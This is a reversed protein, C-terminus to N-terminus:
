CPRRRRMAEVMLVAGEISSSVPVRQLVGGRPNLPFVELPYRLRNKNYIVNAPHRDNTLSVGAVAMTKPEFLPKLNM